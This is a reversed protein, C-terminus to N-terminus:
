LNEYEYDIFGRKRALRLLRILRTCFQRQRRNESELEICRARVRHELWVKFSESETDVIM